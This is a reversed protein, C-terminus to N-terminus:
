SRRTPGLGGRSWAALGFLAVGLVSEVADGVFFGYVMAAAAVPLCVAAIAGQLRMMVMCVGKGDNFTSRSDSAV